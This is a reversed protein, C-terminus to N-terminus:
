HKSHTHQSTQNKKHISGNTMGTFTLRANRQKGQGVKVFFFFFFFQMM